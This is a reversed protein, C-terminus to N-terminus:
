SGDTERRLSFTFRKDDVNVSWAYNSLFPGEVRGSMAAKRVRRLAVKSVPTLMTKSVLRDLDRTNM